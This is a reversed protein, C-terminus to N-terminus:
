FPFGDQASVVVDELDVKLPVADLSVSKDIDVKEVKAGIKKQANTTGDAGVDFLLNPQTKAAEIDGENTTPTISQTNTAADTGEDFLM